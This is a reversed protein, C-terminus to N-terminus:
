KNEKKNNKTKADKKNEVANQPEEETKVKIESKKIKFEEPKLLKIKGNEDIVEKLIEWKNSNKNFYINKVRETYEQEIREVENIPFITDNIYDKYNNFQSIFGYKAISSGFLLLASFILLIFSISFFPYWEKYYPKLSDKKNLEVDSELPIYAKEEMEKYLDESELIYYCSINELNKEIYCIENQSKIAVTEKTKFENLLYNTYSFQTGESQIEYLFGNPLFDNGEIKTIKYFADKENDIIFNIKGKLILELADKSLGEGENFGFFVKKPLKFNPLLVKDKLPEEKKLKNSIM